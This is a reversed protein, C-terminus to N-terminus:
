PPGIKKLMRGKYEVYEDKEQRPETAASPMLRAAAEARQKQMERLEKLTMNLQRQMDTEYRSLRSAQDSVLLAEIARGLRLSDALDEIPLGVDPDNSLDPPVADQGDHHQAMYYATWELLAKEFAPFRRLRWFLSVAREVLQNELAGQPSLSSFTAQRLGEFEEPNDGPLMAHQATLGHRVANMSSRGKGALSRPGTSRLANARNATIQRDSAM